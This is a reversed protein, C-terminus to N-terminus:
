LPCNLRLSHLVQWVDIVEEFTVYSADDCRWRGGDRSGHGSYCILFTDADPDRDTNLFGRIRRLVESAQVMTTLTSACCPVISLSHSVDHQQFLNIELM